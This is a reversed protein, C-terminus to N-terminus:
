KAGGPVCTHGTTTQGCTWATPAGPKIAKVQSCDMVRQWKRNSGCVEVLQGNCRTAKVQPCTTGCADAIFLLLLLFLYRM